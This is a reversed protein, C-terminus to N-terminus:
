NSLSLTSIGSIGGIFSTFYLFILGVDAALLIKDYQEKPLRNHLSVNDLQRNDIFKHIKDYETGNGIIMLHSNKVQHFNDAVELLFDIGQPKGLNGGYIFLTKDRDINFENLIEKNKESPNLRPIPDISNPFIEVKNENIFQNHELIFDKNAQSM